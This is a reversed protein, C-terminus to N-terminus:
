DTWPLVESRNTPFQSSCLDFVTYTPIGSQETLADNHIYVRYCPVLYGLVVQSSYYCEVYGTTYRDTFPIRDGVAEMLDVGTPIEATAVATPEATNTIGIHLRSTQPRYTISISKCLTLLASPYEAAEVVTYRYDKVAAATPDVTHEYTIRQQIVPAHIETYRLAAEIVPIEAITGPTLETLPTNTAVAINVGESTGYVTLADETYFPSRISFADDYQFTYDGEGLLLTLYRRLNDEKIKLLEPSDEYMPGVQGSPYPDAYIGDCGFRFDSPAAFVGLPNGAPLSEITYGMLNFGPALTLETRPLSLFNLYGQSLPLGEMPIPYWSYSSGAIQFIRGLIWLDGNEDLYPRSLAVNSAGGSAAALYDLTERSVPSDPRDFRTFFYNLIAEKATTLFTEETYGAATYVEEPSLESGKSYSLNYFSYDSGDREGQLLLTCIDGNMAWSYDLSDYATIYKQLLEANIEMARPGEMLLFPIHCLPRESDPLGFGELGRYTLLEVAKPDGTWPNDPARYDEMTLTYRIAESGDLPYHCFSYQTKGNGDIWLSARNGTERDWYPLLNKRLIERTEETFSFSGTAMYKATLEQVVMLPHLLNIEEADWIQATKGTATDINYSLYLPAGSDREGKLLLSLVTGRQCYAYHVATFPSTDGSILSAFVEQIEANFADASHVAKTFNPIRYPGEEYYSVVFTDLSIDETPVTPETTEKSPMSPPLVPNEVPLIHGSSGFIWPDLWSDANAELIDLYEEESTAYNANGLLYWLELLAEQEWQPLDFFSDGGEKELLDAVQLTNELLAYAHSEPELAEFRDLDEALIVTVRQLSEIDGAYTDDESRAILNDFASCWFSTPSIFDEKSAGTFTCGVALATVLLLCLLAIWLKKPQKVILEVRERLQNKSAAMTTATRLLGQPRSAHSIMSLLTDGYPIREQEGLTQLAGEDCALECDQRSLIAAWWVLPHFWYLCLCLGRVWAWLPDLHRYHTQEHILIHRLTRDDTERPIYVRPRFLGVLCPSSLEGNVLVPFPYGEIEIPYANRKARRHFRLNVTLFWLAMIGAGLVWVGIALQSWPISRPTVVPTPQTVTSGNSPVQVPPATVTPHPDVASGSDVVPPATESVSGMSTPPTTHTNQETIAPPDAQPTFNQLSLPSSGIEIPILLRLAVLLWLAYRIRLSIRHGLVYRLGIIVLILVASSLMLGTM